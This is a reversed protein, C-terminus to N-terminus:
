IVFFNEKNRHGRSLTSQANSRMSNTEISRSHRRFLKSFSSPAVSVIALINKMNMYWIFEKWNSILAECTGDPVHSSFTQTRVGFNILVVLSASPKRRGIEWELRSHFMENKSSSFFHFVFFIGNPRGDYVYTVDVFVYPKSKDARYKPACVACVCVSYQAIIKLIERCKQRNKKM